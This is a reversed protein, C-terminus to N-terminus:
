HSPQISGRMKTMVLPKYVGFYVAMAGMIIIQWITTFAIEPAFISLILMILLPLLLLPQVYRMWRDSYAVGQLNWLILGIWYVVILAWFIAIWTGETWGSTAAVQYINDKTPNLAFVAFGLLLFNFLDTYKMGVTYRKERDEVVHSTYIVDSFILLMLTLSEFIHESDPQNLSYIVERFSALFLIGFIINYFTM